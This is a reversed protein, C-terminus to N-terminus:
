GMLKVEFRYIGRHVIVSKPKIQEVVFGNVAQKERLLTNNMLCAPAVKSHLVSQLQLQQAAALADAREQQKRAKAEEESLDGHQGSHQQFPNVKLNGLPVQNVSPYTKFTEVVQETHRMLERAQKIDGAGGALFQEVASSKGKVGAASSTSLSSSGATTSAVAADASKPGNFVFQKVGVGLGVVVLAALVVNNRKAKAKSRAEDSMPSVVGALEDDAGGGNSSDSQQNFFDSM